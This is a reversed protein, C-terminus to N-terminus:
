RGRRDSGYPNEDLKKVGNRKEAAEIAEQQKRDRRRKRREQRRQHVREQINDVVRVLAQAGREILAILIFGNM